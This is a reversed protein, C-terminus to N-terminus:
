WQNFKAIQMERTRVPFKYYFVWPQSIVDWARDLGKAQWEHRGGLYFWTRMTRLINQEEIKTTNVM